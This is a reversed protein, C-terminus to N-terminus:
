TKKRSTKSQIKRWFTSEIDNLHTLAFLLSEISHEIAGLVKFGELHDIHLGCQPFKQLYLSCFSEQALEAISRFHEIKWSRQRGKNDWIWTASLRVTQTNKRYIRIIGEDAQVIVNGEHANFSIDLPRNSNEIIANSLKFIRLLESDPMIKTCAIEGASQTLTHVLGGKGDDVTTLTVAPSLKPNREIAAALHQSAFSYLAVNKKPKDLLNFGRYWGTILLAIALVSRGPVVQTTKWSEIGRIDLPTTRLILFLGRLFNSKGDQILEPNAEKKNELVERSSRAWVKLTDSSLGNKRLGTSLFALLKLSDFGKGWRDNSFTDLVFKIARTYTEDENEVLINLCEEVMSRNCIAAGAITSLVSHNLNGGDLLSSIAGVSRNSEDFPSKESLGQHGGELGRKTSQLKGTPTLKLGTNVICEFHETALGSMVSNRREFDKLAKISAFQVKSIASSPIVTHVLGNGSELEVSFELVCPKSDTAIPIESEPTILKWSKGNHSESRILGKVYASPAAIFGDSLFRRLDREDVAIMASASKVLRSGDDPYDFNFEGDTM